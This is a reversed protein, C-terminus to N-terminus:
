AESTTAPGGEVTRGLVWRDLRTLVPQVEVSPMVWGRRRTAELGARLRAVAESVPVEHAPLGNEVMPDLIEFRLRSPAMDPLFFADKVGGDLEEIDILAILPAVRDDEKAVAVILQVQDRADELSTAWASTPHAEVLGAVVPRAARSGTGAAGASRAAQAAPGDLVSAIAICADR